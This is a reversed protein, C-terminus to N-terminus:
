DLELSLTDFTGASCTKLQVSTTQSAQNHFQQNTRTPNSYFASAPHSPCVNCCYLPKFLLSANPIQNHENTDKAGDAYDHDQVVEDDAKSGRLWNLSLASSIRDIAYKVPNSTSRM